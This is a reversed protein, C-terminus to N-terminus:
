PRLCVLYASYWQPVGKAGRTPNNIQIERRALSICCKKLYESSVETYEKSFHGSIMKLQRKTKENNITSFQKVCELGLDRILNM